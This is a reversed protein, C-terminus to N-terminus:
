PETDAVKSLFELQDQIESVLEQAREQKERVSRPDDGSETAELENQLGSVEEGLEDLVEEEDM